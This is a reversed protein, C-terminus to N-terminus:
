VHARGIQECFFVAASAESWIMVKRRDFRDGLHGTVPALIGVVGFTLLLTGSQLLASHTQNWVTYMLATYAAAGGAVSILRGVALRTINSRSSHNM